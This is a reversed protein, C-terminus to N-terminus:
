EGGFYENGILDVFEVLYTADVDGEYYRSTGRVAHALFAEREDPHRKKRKGISPGVNRLHQYDYGQQGAAKRLRVFGNSVKSSVFQRKADNSFVYETRPAM